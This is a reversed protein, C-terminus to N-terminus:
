GFVGNERTETCKVLQERAPDCVLNTVGAFEENVKSNAITVM